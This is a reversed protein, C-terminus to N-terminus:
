ENKAGLYKIFDEKELRSTFIIYPKNSSKILTLHNDRNKANFEKIYTVFDQDINEVCGETIFGTIAHDKVRRYYSDLCTQSDFDLYIILDCKKLEKQLLEKITEM